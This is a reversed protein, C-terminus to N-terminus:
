VRRANAQQFYIDLLGLVPIRRGRREHLDGTEDFCHDGSLAGVAAFVFFNVKLAKLDFCRFGTAVVSKSRQKRRSKTKLDFGNTEETQLLRFRSRAYAIPEGEASDLAISGYIEHNSVHCLSQRVAKPSLPFM